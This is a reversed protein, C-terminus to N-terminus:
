RQSIGFRGALPLVPHLPQKECRHDRHQKRITRQRRLPL